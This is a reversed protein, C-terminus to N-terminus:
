VTPNGIKLMPLWGAVMVATEVEPPLKVAASPEHLATSAAPALQVTFIVTVGVVTPVIDEVNLTVLLAPLEGVDVSFLAPVLKVKGVTEKANGTLTVCTTAPDVVRIVAVMVLGFPVGRDNRFAPTKVPSGMAAVGFAV